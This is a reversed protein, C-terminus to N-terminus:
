STAILSEDQPCCAAHAQHGAACPRCLLRRVSPETTVTCYVPKTCSLSQASVVAHEACVAAGCQACVGVSAVQRGAGHCDLCNM